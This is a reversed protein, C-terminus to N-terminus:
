RRGRRARLRAKTAPHTRSGPRAFGTKVPSSKKPTVRQPLSSVKVGKLFEDRQGKTIKGQEYLIAMKGAQAQSKAPM